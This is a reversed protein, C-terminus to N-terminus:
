STKQLEKEYFSGAIKGGKLHSIVYTWPLIDKIKSFVFLEEIWNQTYGKVFINKYKLIRVHDGVKFKPDKENSDENYEAYSDSATDIPKM